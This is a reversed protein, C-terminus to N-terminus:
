VKGAKSIHNWRFCIIRQSWVRQCELKPVDSVSMLNLCYCCCVLVCFNVLLCTKVSRMVLFIAKWKMMRFGTGELILRWYELCLHCWGKRLVSHLWPSLFRDGLCITSAWCLHSSFGATARNWMFHSVSFLWNGHVGLMFVVMWLLMLIFFQEFKGCRLCMVMLLARSRGVKLMM